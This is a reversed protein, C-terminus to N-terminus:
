SFVVKSYSMADFSVSELSILSGNYNVEYVLGYKDPGALWLFASRRVRLAKVKRYANLRAGRLSDEVVPPAAIYEKMYAALQDAERTTKKVECLVYGNQDNTDKYAVADFAWDRKSQAGILNIPWGLNIHMRALVGATIIPELWLSFSRIESGKRGEWFFKETANAKGLSYSGNRAYQIFGIDWAQMFLKIDASSLKAINNKFGQPKMGMTPHTCYQPILTTELLENFRAFAKDM